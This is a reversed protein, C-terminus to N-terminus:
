EKGYKEELLKYCKDRYMNREETIKNVLDILEDLTLEKLKEESYM